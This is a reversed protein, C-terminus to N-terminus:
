PVRARIRTGRGPSADIELNGGVIELREQMGLLGLRKKVQHPDFGSGNDRISVCVPKKLDLKVEVLTAKAHRAVNTLAEQVVRYLAIMVEAELPVADANSAQFDVPIGTNATWQQLYNEIAVELGLEDLEAPRLEWSQRHTARILDNVVKRLENLDYGAAESGSQSLRRQFTDLHLLVAVMHQGLNDHLERSVRAREAEQLHVVRQLLDRRENEIKEREGTEEQLRNLATELESTREIVRSELADRAQQLEEAHLKTETDDYMVGTMHTARGGQMGVAQGYACMWRVEGTDARVIRFDCQFSASDRVARDLIERIVQRDDPFVANFFFDLPKEQDDPVLGLLLYHQENWKVTGATVNWDWAAMQASDLAIRLRQESQQRAQEARAREVAAWTREATDEILAIEDVTWIRPERQHVSVLAVHQGHKVLPVGVTAAVEVAPYASREADTLRLDNAVDHIVLTRGSRMEDFLTAGFDNARFRGSISTSGPGHYHQRIVYYASDEGKEVEAYIVRSARIRQGLLRAAVGQIEGPDTLPRLADSLSVRYGDLEAALRLQEETLKRKTIDNFLIAVHNLAPDDIRFAYVDYWRGLDQARAEFREPVGTRAIRGYIEFWHPEHDSTIERMTRGIADFVGTQRIFSPNVQLFRYDAARGQEDFLVQITCFGEDISDFLLRYRRESERLAKESARREILDAAQRALVDLLHFDRESPDHPKRWHTSIVGVLRGSRSVLPTAQVSRMGSKRFALLQEAEAAIASSEVDNVFIRKRNQLAIGGVEPSTLTARKWFAVSDPHLGRAALLHLEGTSEDVQQISGADAKLLKVAAEVLEDYPSIAPDEELLQSSIKQLQKADALESALKSESERLAKQTQRQEILDAAQPALLDLFRLEREEPRHDSKWHTTLMGILQGSRTILPTSQAFRYGADLYWRLDGNPDDADPDDFSVFIRRRSTLALGCSTSSSADIRGFREAADDPFGHWSQLVLESADSDLIQVTGGDAHMIRRATANVDDYVAQIEADPLTRTGLDRLLQTDILDAAVAVEARAREAIVWARDAVSQILEVESESWPRPTAHHIGFSGVWRGGKELMVGVFAAIQSSLLNAREDDGLRPDNAVDEIVVAEGRRFAEVLFSGFASIKSRVEFPPCGSAYCCRVIFEEDEIDAYCARNVNLHEGLMRCATAQVEDAHHLPRLADSLRLLFTQREESRRLVLEAKKLGTIDHFIVAVRDQGSPSAAVRLWRNLPAIQQEFRATKGTAVVKDCTSAWWDGEIGPFLEGLMMGLAAERRIGTLKECAANVELCRCDVVAGTRDDRVLQAVVVGQDMSEFLNRLREESAKVLDAAGAREDALQMEHQRRTLELQRHRILDAAQRALLDLFRLDRDAPHHRDHWHTTIMGILAGSRSVLPTSQASRYGADCLLKLAPDAGPADFDIYARQNSRLALGCSTPSNADVRQFRVVLAEEFGSAALVALDGTAPDLIQVVGADARTLTIAAALIEQYIADINDEDVLRAGLEALLRTDELDAAAHKGHDDISTSREASSPTAM